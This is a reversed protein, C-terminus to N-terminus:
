WCAGIRAVWGWLVVAVDGGWSGGQRVGASSVWSRLISVPRACGVIVM